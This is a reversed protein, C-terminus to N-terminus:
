LQFENLTLKELAQLPLLACKLRAPGIAVGLTELIEEKSLSKLREVPEGLLQETVMSMAAQSIACGEGWFGLDLIKGNEVFIELGLKDGCLPNIVEVSCTVKELRKKNRPNKYHDLIEEQYLNM